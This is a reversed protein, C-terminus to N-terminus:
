LAAGLEEELEEDRRVEAPTPSLTTMQMLEEVLDTSMRRLVHTVVQEEVSRWTGVDPLAKGDKVRQSIFPPRTRSAPWLCMFLPM